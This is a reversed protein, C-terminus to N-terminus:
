PRVLVDPTIHNYQHAFMKGTRGIGTQVEDLILLWNNAQCIVQVQNLYDRKPIIVGSEGQIPELMVAVINNNNRHAKIADVDNFDFPTGIPAQKAFPLAAVSKVGPVCPEVKPPLGKTQLVASLTSSIM